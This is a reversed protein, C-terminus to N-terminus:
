LDGDESGQQLLYRISPRDRDRRSWGGLFEGQRAIAASIEAERLHLFRDTDGESLAQAAPGSIGHSALWPDEMDQEIRARILESVAGPPHLVRNAAAKVGALVNPFASHGHQEVLETLDLASGDRLNVPTLACLGLLSLRSRASRADFSPPPSFTTRDSPLMGLLRQVSGEEDDDIAAVARRRFTREDFSGLSLLTRWSFRVLLTRSRERPGPHLDFFRALIELLFTRPLLRLHPIQLRFRVFSLVAQLVGLAEGVAGRLLEPERRHHEALTRTVDLGRMALLITMLADEKLEGMRLEEVRRALTSLKTPPNGEEGYLADHIESWKLSRGSNNVRFFIEKLLEPRDTEIVYLPIQYERIRKGTEFLEQRLERSLQQEIVYESLTTADLLIPVPAWSQTVTGVAPPAHFSKREPDFYVVYPDEPFRPLPLRRGLSAAIATLRQQGDVVWWADPAPGAEVTLPGVSLEAAPAERKWLLLSGIPLGKRISDFLHIVDQARWRLGRQFSPVRIKGRLTTDVLREVTEARAEPRNDLALGTESGKRM